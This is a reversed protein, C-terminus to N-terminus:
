FSADCEGIRSVLTRLREVAQRHLQSVRARTVALVAAVDDLTRGHRYIMDVVHREREPLREVMARVQRQAQRLELQAYPDTQSGEADAGLGIGDLIMAFAVSVGLDGLQALLADGDRSRPLEAVLSAVRERELRRRMAGQDQLETMRELGSLVAGRIRRGAFTTFKVGRDPDYRDLSEMLGLMAFQLYDEFEIDNHARRGYVTVAIMRAYARHHEVLAQRASEDRSQRWRRWLAPEEEEAPANVPSETVDGRAPLVTV